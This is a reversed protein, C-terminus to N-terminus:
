SSAQGRRSRLIRRDTGIEFVAPHAVRFRGGSFWAFVGFSKAVRRTADVLVPFPLREARTAFHSVVDYPRQCVVFARATGGPDQRAAELAEASGSADVDPLFTLTLPRGGTLLKELTYEGGAVADRLIFDPAVSGPQLPSRMRHIKDPAGRGPEM